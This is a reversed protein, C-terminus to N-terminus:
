HSAGSQAGSANTDSKRDGQGPRTTSSARTDARSGAATTPPVKVVVTRQKLAPPKPTPMPNIRVADAGTAPLPAGLVRGDLRIFAPQSPPVMGLEKAATALRQPNRLADLEMNLAQEKATQANVQEQLATAKFSAQQMNTNFMLLGVVGAVLMAIVLVAFPTRAAQTRGIARRPPVVTLRAREVAAEAFRPVRTRAQTILTSM